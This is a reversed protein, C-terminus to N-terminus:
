RISNPAQLEISPRIGTMLAVVRGDGEHIVLDAPDEVLEVAEVEGAVGGYEETLFFIESKFKGFV